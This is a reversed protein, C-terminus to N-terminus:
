KTERAAEAAKKEEDEKNLESIKEQDIAYNMLSFGLVSFLLMSTMLKFVFESTNMIKEDRAGWKGYAIYYIARKEDITLYNWDFEQKVNLYSIINQQAEFNLSVWRKELNSVDIYYEEEENEVEKGNEFKKEEIKIKIPESHNNISSYKRINEIKQFNINKKIYFITSNSNNNYTYKKLGQLITRKFSM